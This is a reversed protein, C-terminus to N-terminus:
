QATVTFEASTLYGGDIYLELTYTGPVSPIDANYRGDVCVQNFPLSDVSSKVVQGNSDRIVLMTTVYNGDYSYGGLFRMSFGATQGAAFTDTFDSDSINWYSWEGVGPTRFTSIRYGTTDAM